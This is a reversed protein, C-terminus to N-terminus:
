DTFGEEFAIQRLEDATLRVKGLEEHERYLMEDFPSLYDEDRTRTITVIEKEKKTKTQVSSSLLLINGLIKAIVPTPKGGAFRKWKRNRAAQDPREPWREPDGLKLRRLRRHKDLETERLRVPYHDLLERFPIDWYNWYGDCLPMVAMNVYPYRISRWGGPNPTVLELLELEVLRKMAKGSTERSYGTRRAIQSVSFGEGYRWKWGVLDMLKDLTPLCPPHRPDGSRTFLLDGGLLALSGLYQELNDVLAQRDKRLAIPFRNAGAKRWRAIARAHHSPNADRWGIPPQKRERPGDRGADTPRKREREM